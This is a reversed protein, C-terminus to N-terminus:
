QILKEIEAKLEDGFVKHAVITGNQDILVTAPIGNVGYLKAAASDWYKLDSVHKWILGDDEIAKLWKDKDKDLSVGLFEVGKPSLENYIEVMHPNERRCPGCWSAWFDIVVIKGKLSSLSMPTGEPTDLTFDPAPQGVAVKKLIDIKSKILLASSSAKVDEGFTNFLEEMENVDLQSLLNRYSIVAAVVSNGNAKVFTKVTEMKEADVTEYEKVAAEAEAENKESMAKKYAAIIPEQKSKFAMMSTVFSNYLDQSVSGTIKADRLSEINAEVSIPANELFVPIAGRKDDIQLYYMDAVAVHGEIKFAGDVIDASDIKVLERNKEINLYIKGESQGEIKGSLEYKKQTDCAAFLVSIAVAAFLLKKM